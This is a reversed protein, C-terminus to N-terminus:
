LTYHHFSFLFGLICFDEAPNQRCVMHNETKRPIQLMCYRGMDMYTYVNHRFIINLFFGVIGVWTWTLIIYMTDSFVM